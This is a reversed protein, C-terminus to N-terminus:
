LARRRLLTLVFGFIILAGGLSSGLVTFVGIGLTPGESSGLLIDFLTPAYSLAVVWFGLKIM